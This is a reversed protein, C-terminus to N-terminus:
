DGDLAYTFKNVLQISDNGLESKIFNKHIKNQLSNDFKSGSNPLLHKQLIGHKINYIISDKQFSYKIYRIFKLYILVGLSLIWLILLIIFFIM